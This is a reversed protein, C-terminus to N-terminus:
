YVGIMPLQDYLFIVEGAPGHKAGVTLPVISTEQSFSIGLDSIEGETPLDIIASNEEHVLSWNSGDSGSDFDHVASWSNNFVSLKASDFLGISYHM